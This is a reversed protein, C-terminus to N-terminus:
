LTPAVTRDKKTSTEIKYENLTYKEGINANTIYM